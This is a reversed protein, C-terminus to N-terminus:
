RALLYCNPPLRFKDFVEDAAEALGVKHSVLFKESGATTALGPQFV